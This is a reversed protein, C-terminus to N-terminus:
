FLRNKDTEDYNNEKIWDMANKVGQATLYEQNEITQKLLQRLPTGGTIVEKLAMAESGIIKTQPEFIRNQKFLQIVQETLEDVRNYLDERNLM